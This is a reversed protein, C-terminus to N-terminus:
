SRFQPFDKTFTRTFCQCQDITSFTADEISSHILFDVKTSSPNTSRILQELEIRIQPNIDLTEKSSPLRNLAVDLIDRLLQLSSFNM